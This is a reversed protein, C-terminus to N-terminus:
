RKGPEFVEIRMCLRYFHVPQKNNIAMLAMAQELELVVAFLVLNNSEV